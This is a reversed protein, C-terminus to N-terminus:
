VMLLREVVFISSIESAEEPVGRRVLKEDAFGRFPELEIDELISLKRFSSHAL